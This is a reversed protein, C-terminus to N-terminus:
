SWIESSVRSLTTMESNFGGLEFELCFLRNRVGKPCSFTDQNYHPTRMEPICHM